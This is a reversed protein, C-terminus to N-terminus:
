EYPLYACSSMKVSRANGKARFVAERQVTPWIEESTLPDTSNQKTSNCGVNVAFGGSRNYTKSPLLMVKTHCYLKLPDNSPTSNWNTTLEVATVMKSLCSKFLSATTRSLTKWPRMWSFMLAVRASIVIKANRRDSLPFNSILNILTLRWRAVFPTSTWTCHLYVVLPKVFIIEVPEIQQFIKFDNRLPSDWKM